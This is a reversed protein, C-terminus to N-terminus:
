GAPVQRMPPSEPATRSGCNRTRPTSLSRTASAEIIGVKTLPLVCAGLPMIPSRAASKSQQALAPRQDCRCCGPAPLRAGRARSAQRKADYKGLNSRDMKHCLKPRTSAWLPIMPASPRARQRLEGSAQITQLAAYYKRVPQRHNSADITELSCCPGANAADSSQLELIVKGGRSRVWTPDASQDFRPTGTPWARSHATCPATRRLRGLAGRADTLPSRALPRSRSIWPARRPLREPPNASARQGGSPGPSPRPQPNLAPGCAADPIRQSVAPGARGVGKAPSRRSVWFPPRPRPRKLSCLAKSGRQWRMEGDDQRWVL